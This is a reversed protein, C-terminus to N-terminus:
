EDHEGTAIQNISDSLVDFWPMREQVVDVVKNVEEQTLERDLIENAVNQIDEVNLSYVIRNNEESLCNKVIAM